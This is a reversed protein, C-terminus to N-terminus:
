FDLTLQLKKGTKAKTPAACIEYVPTEEYRSAVVVNVSGCYKNFLEQVLM